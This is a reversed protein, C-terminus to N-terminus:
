AAGDFVDLVMEVDKLFYASPAVVDAVAFVESVLLGFFTQAFPEFGSRTV